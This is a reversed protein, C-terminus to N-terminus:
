HGSTASLIAFSAVAFIFLHFDGLPNRSHICLSFAGRTHPFHPNHFDSPLSLTSDKRSTSSFLLLSLLFLCQLLPLNLRPSKSLLTLTITPSFPTFCSCHVNKVMSVLGPSWPCGWSIFYGDGIIYGCQEMPKQRSGSVHVM